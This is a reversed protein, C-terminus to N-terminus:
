SDFMSGLRHGAEDLLDCPLPVFELGKIAFFSLYGLLENILLM